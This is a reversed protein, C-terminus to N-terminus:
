PRVDFVSVSLGMAQALRIGTALLARASSVQDRNNLFLCLCNITQITELSPENMFDYTALCVECYQVILLAVPSSCSSELADHRSTSVELLREELETDEDDEFHAGLCLVVYLLALWRARSPRSRESPSMANFSNYQALFTPIHLPHHIWEM